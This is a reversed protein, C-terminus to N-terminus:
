LKCMLVQWKKQRLKETVTKWPHLETVLHFRWRLDTQLFSQNTSSQKGQNSFYRDVQMDTNKLQQVFWFNPQDLALNYAAPEDSTDHCLTSVTRVCLQKTGTQKITQSDQNIVFINQHNHGHITSCNTTIVSCSSTWLAAAVFLLRTNWVHKQQACLGYFAKNSLSSNM